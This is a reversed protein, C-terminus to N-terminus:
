CIPLRALDWVALFCGEDDTDRTIAIPEGLGYPPITLNTRNFYVNPDFKNDTPYQSAILYRASQMFFQLTAQVRPPDMHILVHRCLIADAKPLATKSIDIQKVGPERPVLDFPRYDIPKFLIIDDLWHMDGAGADNLSM